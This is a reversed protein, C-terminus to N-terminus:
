NCTEDNQKSQSIPNGTQPNLKDPTKCNCGLDDKVTPPEDWIQRTQPTSGGREGRVFVLPRSPNSTIPSFATSM